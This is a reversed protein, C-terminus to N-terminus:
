AAQPLAMEALRNYARTFDWVNPECAKGIRYEDVENGAYSGRVELQCVSGDKWGVLIKGHYGDERNEFRRDIEIGPISYFDDGKVARGAVLRRSKPIRTFADKPLRTLVTRLQMPIVNIREM